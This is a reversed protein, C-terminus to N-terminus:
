ATWLGPSTNRRLHQPLAQCPLAPTNASVDCESLDSLDIVALDDAVLGVADPVIGPRGALPPVKQLRQIQPMAVGSDHLVHQRLPEAPDDRLQDAAVRDSDEV